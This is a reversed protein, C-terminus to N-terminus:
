EVRFGIKIIVQYQAAKGNQIQGRIEGVQFWDLNRVSEGTKAIGNNIADEVSKTSTGVIEVLKYVKDNM